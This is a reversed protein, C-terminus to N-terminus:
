EAIVVKTVASPGRGIASPERVFLIGSRPNLVRRGMADFVVAGQPLIRTVTAALKRGSGL